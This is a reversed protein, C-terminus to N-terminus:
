IHEVDLVMAATFDGKQPAYKYAVHCSDTKCDQKSNKDQANASVLSFVLIFCLILYKKM